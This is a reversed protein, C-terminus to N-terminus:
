KIVISELKAIRKEHDVVQELRDALKIIARTNENTHLNLKVLEEQVKTMEIEVKYLRGNTQDLRENTKKMEELMQDQRKLSESLVELIRDENEM